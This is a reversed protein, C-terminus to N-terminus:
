FSLTTVSILTNPLLISFNTIIQVSKKSFVIPSLVLGIGLANILVLKAYVGQLFVFLIIFFIFKHLCIQWVSTKKQLLFAMAM